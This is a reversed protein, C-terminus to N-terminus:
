SSRRRRTGIPSDPPHDEGHWRKRLQEDLAAGDTAYRDRSAKRLTAADTTALGLPLTQVAFPSTLEGDVYLRAVAQYAGLSLLDEPIVPRGFIAALPKADDQSPRFALRSRANASVAARLTPSIQALNQHAVTLSGGLGRMQALVEGFDLAGQYDQFEDVIWSVPSRKAHPLLARRQMANWAAQLLLSGLLRSAEAGIVGRNLNVLIVAPRSAFAEDLSFAPRPNGLMRRIPQRSLFARLKNTVPAIVQQREPESLSEYWAWWPGLTLPDSVKALARRRFNPNTLLPVVDALTGDPMRAVTLLAHLLVDSSRPGIASGFIARMLSVIEDARREAELAPGALPNWGVQDRESPDIVVVDGHRHKPLRAPVDAVLDGRPEICLVTHGAAADAVILQALHNSKGSGTPGFIHYNFNGSKVPMEVLQGGDAPHLSRGLVRQKPLQTDGSPVLLRRPAPPLMLGRGPVPVTGLPWGLLEGLEAANVISSWTSGVRHVSALSRARGDTARSARLYCRPSEAMRLAGVIGRIIAGAREPTAAKAGGRCRVGFLPEAAKDRWARQDHNDPSTTPRLGLAESLTFDAPRKARPHSPGVVWQMCALEDPRLKLAALVCASVAEATD